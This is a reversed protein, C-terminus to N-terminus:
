EINIIYLYVSQYSSYDMYEDVFEKRSRKRTSMSKPEEHRKEKENKMEVDCEEDLYDLSCTTNM